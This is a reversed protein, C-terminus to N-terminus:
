LYGNAKLRKELGEIVRRVFEDGTVYGEPIEFTDSTARKRSPRRLVTTEM